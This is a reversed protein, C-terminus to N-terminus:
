FSVGRVSFSLAFPKITKIPRKRDNFNISKKNWFSPTQFEQSRLATPPQSVILQWIDPGGSEDQILYRPNAQLISTALISECMIIVLYMITHQLVQIESTPLYQETFHKGQLRHLLCSKGVNRDGKIVLKVLLFLVLTVQFLIHFKNYMTHTISNLM